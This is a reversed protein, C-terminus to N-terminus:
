MTQILTPEPPRSPPTPPSRRQAQNPATGAGPGDFTTITGNADRVFGHNLGSEDAYFGTMVGKANISLPETGTFPATGAGPVDLTTITGNADRVFGHGM